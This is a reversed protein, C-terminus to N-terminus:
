SIWASLIVDIVQGVIVSNFDFEDLTIRVGFKDQVCVEMELRDISDLSFKDVLDTGENIDEPKIDEMRLNVIIIDRLAELIDERSPRIERTQAM